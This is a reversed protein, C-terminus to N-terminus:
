YDTSFTSPLTVTPSKSIKCKKVSITITKSSVYNWLVDIIMKGHVVLTIRHRLGHGIDEICTYVGADTHTVNFIVLSFDGSVSRDICFRMSYGNVINGASCLYAGSENASPQYLWDVPRRLTTRCPLTVSKGIM